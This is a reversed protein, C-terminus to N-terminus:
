LRMYVAQWLPNEMDKSEVLEGSHVQVSHCKEADFRYFVIPALKDLRRFFGRAAHYAVVLKELQRWEEESIDKM